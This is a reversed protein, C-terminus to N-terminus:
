LYSLKFQSSYKLLTTDVYLKCNALTNIKTINFLVCQLSATNICNNHFRTKRLISIEQYLMPHMPFLLCIHTVETVYSFNLFAM